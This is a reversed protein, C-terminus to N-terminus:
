KNKQLTDTYTRTNEKEKRKMKKQSKANEKVTNNHKNDAYCACLNHATTSPLWWNNLLLVCLLASSLFLILFPVCGSEM